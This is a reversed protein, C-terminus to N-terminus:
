TERHEILYETRTQWVEGRKVEGSTCVPFYMKNYPNGGNDRIMLRGGGSLTPYGHVAMTFYYGSEVGFLTARTAGLVDISSKEIKEVEGSVDTVFSNTVCKKPPMMAMYCAALSYDGLWEVRQDLTLGSATIAYTKEHRLVKTEHDSPDLGVSRVTIELSSFERMVSLQGLKMEVGDVLVTLSDYVEDGHLLGGIFDDRGELALAMDWEARPTLNTHVALCEDCAAASGLRWTDCFIEPYVSHAITYEIYGMETPLYLLLAGKSKDQSYDGSYLIQPKKM